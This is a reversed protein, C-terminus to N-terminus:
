DNHSERDLFQKVIRVSARTQQATFGDDRDKATMCAREMCIRIAHEETASMKM